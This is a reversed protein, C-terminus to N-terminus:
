SKGAVMRMMRQWRTQQERQLAEIRELVQLHLKQERAPDRDTEPEPAARDFPIDRIREPKPQPSQSPEPANLADQPLLEPTPREELRAYLEALEQNLRGMQDLEQQFRDAQERYLEGFWQSMMQLAQQFSGLLHGSLDGPLLTSPPVPKGATAMQWSGISVRSKARSLQAGADVEKPSETPAASSKMPLLDRGPREPRIVRFCFRDVTLEDDHALPAYPVSARNCEIPPSGQLNVMWPGEPTRVLAAVFRSLRQDDLRIRCAPSSGVLAVVCRMEWERVEDAIDSFALQLDPLHRHTEPYSALPNDIPEPWAGAARHSPESRNRIRYPGIVIGERPGIWSWAVRGGETHLGTRSQLDIAFLQGAIVQVYTHRRSVHPHDLQLDCFPERGILFFPKDTTWVRPGDLPSGALPEIKLRVAGLLGTAQLFSRRPRPSRDHPLADLSFVPVDEETAL